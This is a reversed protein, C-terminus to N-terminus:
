AQACMRCMYMQPPMLLEVKQYGGTGEYSLEEAVFEDIAAVIGTISDMVLGSVTNSYLINGRCFFVGGPRLVFYANCLVM